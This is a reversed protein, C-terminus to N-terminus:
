QIGTRVIDTYLYISNYTSLRVYKPVLSRGFVRIDLIAEYCCPMMIKIDLAYQTRTLCATCFINRHLKMRPVCFARQPPVNQLSCM